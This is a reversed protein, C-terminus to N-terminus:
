QPIDRHKTNVHITESSLERKTLHLANGLIFGIIATMLPFATLLVSLILICTFLYKDQFLKQRFCLIIVIPIFIGFIGLQFFVSGLGSLIRTYNDRTSFLLLSTIETRPKKFESQMYDNFKNYGRPLFHNDKMGKFSYFVFMFRESVSGDAALFIAPNEVLESALSYIRQEKLTEYTAKYTIFGVIVLISAYGIARKNFMFLKVALFGVFAVVLTLLATASQALMILQFLLLFLIWWIKKLPFNMLAIAAILICITGYQSPETSICTVGRLESDIGRGGGNLIFTMFKPSIYSQVTGIFFWILNVCVFFYYNLSGISRFSLYSAWTVLFISIYNAIDRLSNFNITDFCLILLALLLTGGFLYISVPASRRFCAAIPIVSLLLANPQTDTGLKLFDLFPFLCFFFFCYILIKKM